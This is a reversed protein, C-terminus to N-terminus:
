YLNAQVQVNQLIGTQIESTLLCFAEIKMLSLAFQYPALVDTAGHVWDHALYSIGRVLKGYHLM